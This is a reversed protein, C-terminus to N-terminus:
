LTDGVHGTGVKLYGGHFGGRCGGRPMDAEQLPLYSTDVNPAEPLMTEETLLESSGNCKCTSTADAGSM